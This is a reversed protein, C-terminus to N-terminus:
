NAKQTWGLIKWKGSDDQRLIFMYYLGQSSTGKRLNLYCDVNCMKRGDVTVVEPERSQCHVALGSETQRGHSM